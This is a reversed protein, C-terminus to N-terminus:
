CYFRQAPFFLQTYLQKYAGAFVDPKCIDSFLQKIVGIFNNGQHIVAIYPAISEFATNGAVKNYTINERWGQPADEGYKLFKDLFPRLHIYLEPSVRVALKGLGQTSFSTSM